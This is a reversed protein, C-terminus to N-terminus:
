QAAQSVVVSMDSLLRQGPKLALRMGVLTVKGVRYKKAKIGNSSLFNSITNTNSRNMCDVGLEIAISKLSLTVFRTSFGMPDVYSEGRVKNDVRFQDNYSTDFKENLVEMIPDIRQHDNLVFRLDMELNNDPWWQEGLCYYHYIEAWFQQSEAPNSMQRCKGDRNSKLSWPTWVLTCPIPATSRGM